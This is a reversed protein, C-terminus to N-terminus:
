EKDESEQPESETEQPNIFDYLKSHCHSCLDVCTGTMGGNSDIIMYRSKYPMYFNGCIDCKKANAM